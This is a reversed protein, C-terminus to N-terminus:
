HECGAFDVPINGATEAGVDPRLTIIWRKARRVVRHLTLLHGIMGVEFNRTAHRHHQFVNDAYIRVFDHTLEVRRKQGELLEHLMEVPLLGLNGVFNAREPM